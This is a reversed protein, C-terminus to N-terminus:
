AVAEPHQAAWELWEGTTKFEVTEAEGTERDVAKHQATGDERVLVRGEMIMQQLLGGWRHVGREFDIYFDARRDLTSAIKTKTVRARVWRGVVDGHDAPGFGLRKRQAASLPTGRYPGRVDGLPSLTLWLELSAYFHPANGGTSKKRPGFMVGVNDRTQNLIVYTTPYRSCRKVIERLGAGLVEGKGGGYHWGGGETLGKESARETTTSDLSDLGALVPVAKDKARVADHWELFHDVAEELTAPRDVMLLDMPLGIAQGFHPDRTGEAESCYGLGGLDVIVSKFMEDLLLTNHTVVYDRVVFLEDVADVTFCVSMGSHAPEVAAISRLRHKRQKKVRACKAAAGRFPEAVGTVTVTWCPRCRVRLGREDRYGVDEKYRMTALGGLSRVVEVVGVALDRSTTSYSVSGRRCATGDTDLLGQLLALRERPHARLYVEPVHREHSRKDLLGLDSLAVRYPHVKFRHGNERAIRHYGQKKSEVVVMGPPLCAAVASVVGDDPKMWVPANYIGDGLWVGLFYSPIPLEAGESAFRVPDVTPVHWTLGAATRLGAELLQKTSMVRWGAGRALDNRSKVAWLHQNDVIVSAGDSFEVRWLQREPQPFAGVVKTPRGDRGVLEDGIRVDGAPTFGRPTLVPESVAIAKGTSWEGPIHVVRGSRPGIPVGGPLRGACIRDLALSGTSCFVSPTELEKAARGILAEKYRKRVSAEAADLLRQRDDRPKAM